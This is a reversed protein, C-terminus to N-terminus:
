VCWLSHWTGARTLADFNLDNFSSDLSVHVISWAPPGRSFKHLKPQGPQGEADKLWQVWSQRRHNKAANEHLEACAWFLNVFGLIEFDSLRTLHRVIKRYLPWVPENSMDANPKFKVLYIKIKWGV